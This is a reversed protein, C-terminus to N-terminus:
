TQIFNNILIEHVYTESLNSTCAHENILLYLIAGATTFIMRLYTSVFVYSLVLVHLLFLSSVHFYSHCFSSFSLNLILLIFVLFLQFSIVHGLRTERVCAWSNFFCSKREKKEYFLLFTKKYWFMMLNYVSKKSTPLVSPSSTFLRKEM